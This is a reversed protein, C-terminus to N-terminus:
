KLRLNVKLENLTKERYLNFHLPSLNYEERRGEQITNEKQSRQEYRLMNM